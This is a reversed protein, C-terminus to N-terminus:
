FRRVLMAPRASSEPFQGEAFATRHDPIRKLLEGLQQVQAPRVQRLDKDAHEHHTEHRHTPYPRDSFGRLCLDTGFVVAPAGLGLALPGLKSLRDGLEFQFVLLVHQVQALVQPFGFPLSVPQGHDAWASWPRRLSRSDNSPFSQSCSEHVQGGANTLAMSRLVRNMEITFRFPPTPLVVSVALTPTKSAGGPGVAHQQDIQIELARQSSEALRVVILQEIQNPVLLGGCSQEVRVIGRWGDAVQRVPDAM